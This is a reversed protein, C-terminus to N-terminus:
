KKRNSRTIKTNARKIESINDRLTASSERDARFLKDIETEKYTNTIKFRNTLSALAYFQDESCLLEIPRGVPLVFTQIFYDNKKRPDRLFCGSKLLVMHVTEANHDYAAQVFKLYSDPTGSWIFENLVTTLIVDNRSWDRAEAETFDYGFRLLLQVAVAQALTPPGWLLNRCVEVLSKLSQLDSNYGGDRIYSELQRCTLYGPLINSVILLAQKLVAQARQDTQLISSSPMMQTYATLFHLVKALRDSLSNSAILTLLNTYKRYNASITEQSDFNNITLINTRKIVESLEQEYHYRSEEPDTTRHFLGEFHAFADGGLHEIENQREGNLVAFIEKQWLGAGTSHELEDLFDLYNM